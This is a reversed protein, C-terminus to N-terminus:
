DGSLPHRLPYLSNSPMLQYGVMMNPNIVIPARLNVHAQGSTDELTVIALWLLPASSDATTGLRVLDAQSLVTRYSPLVRRPDVVVFSAAPGDISRLCQFVGLEESSLLVFKRCAEFGPLGAPFGLEEKPGVEFTGFETVLHRTTGNMVPEPDVSIASM